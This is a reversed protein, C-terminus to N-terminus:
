VGEKRGALILLLMIRHNFYFYALLNRLAMMMCLMGRPSGLLTPMLMIFSDLGVPSMAMDFYMM